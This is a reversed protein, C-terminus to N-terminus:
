TMKRIRDTLDTVQAPSLCNLNGFSELHQILVEHSGPQDAVIRRCSNQLIIRALHPKDVLSADFALVIAAALEGLDPDAQQLARLETMPPVNRHCGGQGASIRSNPNTRFLPQPQENNIWSEVVLGNWSTPPGIMSQRIEEQTLARAWLHLNRLYDLPGVAGPPASYMLPSVTNGDVLQRQLSKRPATRAREPNGGLEQAVSAQDAQTVIEGLINAYEHQGALTFLLQAWLEPFGSLWDL